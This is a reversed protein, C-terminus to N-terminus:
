AAVPKGAEFFSRVFDVAKKEQRLKDPNMVGGPLLLADFQDARAQDLPRDVTTQKDWHDHDWGKITGTEPSVVATQAGAQELAAKPQLLEVEEVGDTALIAVRKGNLRYDAM